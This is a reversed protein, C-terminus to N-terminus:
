GLQSEGLRIAVEGPAVRTRLQFFIRGLEKEGVGRVEQPRVEEGVRGVNQMLIQLLLVDAKM